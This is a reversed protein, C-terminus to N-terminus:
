SPPTNRQTGSHPLISSDSKANSLLFVVHDSVDCFERIVYRTLLEALQNGNANIVSADIPLLKPPAIARATGRNNHMVAAKNRFAGLRATTNTIFVSHTASARVYNPSSHNIATRSRSGSVEIAVTSPSYGHTVSPSLELVKNGVHANGAGIVLDVSDVVVPVVAGFVASPCCTLLLAAICFLVPM